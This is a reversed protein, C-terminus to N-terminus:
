RHIITVVHIHPYRSDIESMNESKCAKSYSHGELNYDWNFPYLDEVLEQGGIFTIFHKDQLM